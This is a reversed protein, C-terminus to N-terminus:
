YGYGTEQKIAAGLYKDRPNAANMYAEYDTDLDFLAGLLLYVGGSLLM